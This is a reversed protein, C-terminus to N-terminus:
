GGLAQRELHGHMFFALTAGHLALEGNKLGRPGVGLRDRLDAVVVQRRRFEVLLYTNTSTVPQQLSTAPLQFWCGAVLLWYWCGTGAVGVTDGGAERGEAPEERLHRVV